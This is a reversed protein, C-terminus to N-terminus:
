RVRRIWAAAAAVVTVASHAGGVLSTAVALRGRGRRQALKGVDLGKLQEARPQEVSHRCPDHLTAQLGAVCHGLNTPQERLLEGRGLLARAAERHEVGAQLLELRPARESPAEDRVRRVLDRALRAFELYSALVPVSAALAERQLQHLPVVRSPLPVAATVHLLEARRLALDCGPRSLAAHSLRPPGESRTAEARRRLAVQRAADEPRDAARVSAASGEEARPVLRRVVAAALELHHPTREAALLAQRPAVHLRVDCAGTRHPGGLARESREAAERRPQHLALDGRM